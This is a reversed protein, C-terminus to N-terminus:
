CTFRRQMRRIGQRQIQWLDASTFIRTGSEVFGPAITEKMITTLNELQIPNIQLFLSYSNKKM